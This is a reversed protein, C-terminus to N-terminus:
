EEAKKQRILEEQEEKAGMQEQYEAARKNNKVQLKLMRSM